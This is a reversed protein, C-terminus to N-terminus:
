QYLMAEAAACVLLSFRGKLLAGDAAFVKAEIMGYDDAGDVLEPL